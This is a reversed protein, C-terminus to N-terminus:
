TRKIKFYTPHFLFIAPSEEVLFRQFDFYINKREEENILIRGDELLKDIRPSKLKSINEKQTSHWYYYQDPDPPIIRGAILVEFNQPVEQILEIESDIDLKKWSESITKALDQYQPFTNIKIKIKEGGQNKTLSKAKEINARYPKVDPNYVWSKPNIPSLARQESSDKEIAYSLGQRFSKESFKDSSLNFFLAVYVNDAVYKTVEAKEGIFLGNINSITDIEDIEGLNFAIKLDIDNNYFKYLKRPLNSDNSVLLLSKIDKGSRVIKSVKYDGLGILGKKFLPKSVISPFPTFSDELKFVIKNGEVSSQIDKFNYNIDDIKFKQGDHWYLDNEDIEFSYVRGDSSIVWDKAISPLPKGAPDLNTLGFSINKLIEEPINNVDFKGVYGIKLTKKTEPIYKILKPLFFFTLIGVFVGLSLPIYFKKLFTTILRFFFRLKKKIPM